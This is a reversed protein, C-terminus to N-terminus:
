MHQAEEVGKEVWGQVGVVDKNSVAAGWRLYGKMFKDLEVSDWVGARQGHDGQNVTQGTAFDMFDKKEQFHCKYNRAYGM